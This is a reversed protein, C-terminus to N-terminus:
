AAYPRVRRADRLANAWWGLQNLLTAAALDVDEAAHPEGDPGFCNWAYPFSVTERITAAHLEALVPRLHEVARLGGSIGGYSVFAVPKGHWEPGTADLATKLPGPYSHNYEPVIMVVADAAAVGPSLGEPTEALDIVSLNVDERQKARDLFWNAVVPGFRGERVSSIVVALQYPTNTTM